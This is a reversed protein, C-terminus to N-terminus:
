IYKMALYFKYELLEDKLLRKFKESGLRKHMSDNEEVYECMADFLNWVIPSLKPVERGMYLVGLVLNLLRDINDDSFIQSIIKKKNEYSENDLLSEFLTTYSRIM